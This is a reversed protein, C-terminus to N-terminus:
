KQPETPMAPPPEPAAPKEIRLLEIEFILLQNPGILESARRPGYALEPPVFLKWKSGVKMLQLAETWGRVVGTVAFTATGGHKASSDFETGSALTGVYNVTVTDTAKPLEGDGQKIVSYQLGSPLKVVGEKKANEKLFAEAEAQNKQGLYQDKRQLEEQKRRQEAMAAEQKARLKNGLAELQAQIELETMALERKEISDTIAKALVAVDILIDDKVLSKGINAGIAYSLKELDTKFPSKEAPKVTTEPAPKVDGTDAKAPAAETKAPEAAPAAKAEATPAVAQDAAAARVPDAANTCSAMVFVLTLAVM